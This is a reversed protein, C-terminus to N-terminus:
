FAIPCVNGAGQGLPGGNSRQHPQERHQHERHSQQRSPEECVRQARVIGSRLPWKLLWSERKVFGLVVLDLSRALVRPRHEIRVRRRSPDLQAVVLDLRVAVRWVQVSRPLWAFCRDLPRVAAPGEIWECLCLPVVAHAERALEVTSSQGIFVESAPLEGAALVLVEEALVRLRAVCRVPLRVATTSPTATPGHACAVSVGRRRSADGAAQGHSARTSSSSRNSRM